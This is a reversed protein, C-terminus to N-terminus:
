KPSVGMPGANRAPWFVQLASQVRDAGGFRRLLCVDRWSAKPVGKSLATNSSSILTQVLIYHVTFAFLEMLNNVLRRTPFASFLPLPDGSPYAIIIPPALSNRHDRRDGNLKFLASFMEARPGEV